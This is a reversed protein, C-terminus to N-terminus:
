RRPKRKIYTALEDYEGGENSFEVVNRAVDFWATTSPRLEDISSDVDAMTIM